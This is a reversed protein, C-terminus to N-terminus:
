GSGNLFAVVKRIWDAGLLDKYVVKSNSRMVRAGHEDCYLPGNYGFERTAPGKCVCCRCAQSDLAERLLDEATVGLFM